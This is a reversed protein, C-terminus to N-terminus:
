YKIKFIIKLNNSLYNNTMNTNYIQENKFKVTIKM